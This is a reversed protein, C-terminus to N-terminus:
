KSVCSKEFAKRFSTFVLFVYVSIQVIMKVQRNQVWPFNSQGLSFVHSIVEYIYSLVRKKRFYKIMQTLQQM